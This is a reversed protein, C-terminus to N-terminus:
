VEGAELRTTCAGCLGQRCSSPAALGNEVLVDLLRAGAPWPCGSAARRGAGGRHRRRRRGAADAPVAPTEAVVGDGGRVPGGAALRVEGRPRARAAGHHRAPRHRGRGHVRTPGCVFHRARRVARAAGAAARRGAARARVGALPRREAPRPARQELVRLEADFIVSEPDRNAYVLVAHATGTALVYRLISMVPTIGSGAAVLLLDDDARGRRSCAPRSCSTSCPAPPSTTAGALGVGPRHAEGHHGAARRPASSLSYCRAVQGDPMPVRVTVFQGPRHRFWDALEPPVDLVISRADPTEVVVKAVTLSRHRPDGM